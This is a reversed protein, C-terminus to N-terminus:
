PGPWEPSLAHGVYYTLISLSTPMVVPTTNPVSSRVRLWTNGGGPSGMGVKDSLVRTLTAWLSIEHPKGVQMAGPCDCLLAWAEQAAVEEAGKKSRGEGQVEAGSFIVAPPEASESSADKSCDLADLEFVQM